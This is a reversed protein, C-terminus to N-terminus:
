QQKNESMNEGDRKEGECVTSALLRLQQHHMRHGRHNGRRAIVFVLHIRERERHKRKKKKKKKKKQEWCDGLAGSEKDDGEDESDDDRRDNRRLRESFFSGSSSASSERSSPKEDPKSAIPNLEVM